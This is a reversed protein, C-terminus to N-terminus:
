LLRIIFARMSANSRACHAAIRGYYVSITCNNGDRMARAIRLRKAVLVAYQPANRDEHEGSLETLDSSNQLRLAPAVWTKLVFSLDMVSFLRLAVTMLASLLPLLPSIRVDRLM